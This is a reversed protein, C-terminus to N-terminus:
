ILFQLRYQFVGDLVARGRVVTLCTADDQKESCLVLLEPM